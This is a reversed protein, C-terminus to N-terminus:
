QLDGSFLFFEAKHTKGLWLILIYIIHANNSVRDVHNTLLSTYIGARPSQTGHQSDIEKDHSRQMHSFWGGGM